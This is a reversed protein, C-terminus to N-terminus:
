LRDHCLDGPAADDTTSDAGHDTSILQGDEVRYECGYKLWGQPLRKLSNDLSPNHLLEMSPREYSGFFPSVRAVLLAAIHPYSGDLFGNTGVPSGNAKLFRRDTVLKSATALVTIPPNCGVWAEMFPLNLAVVYPAKTAFERSRNCDAKDMLRSTVRLIENQSPAHDDEECDRLLDPVADERAQGREACTAEIYSRGKCPSIVEFDPGDRPIHQVQWSSRKLVGFVYMEWFNQHFATSFRDPFNPPADPQFCSWLRECEDRVGPDGKAMLYYSDGTDSIFISQHM